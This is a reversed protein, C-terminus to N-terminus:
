RRGRGPKGRGAGGRGGSKGGSGKASGGKGGPQQKKASASSLGRLREKKAKQEADRVSPQRSSGARRGRVVGVFEEVLPDERAAVALPQEDEPRAVDVRLWALGVSTTPEGEILRCVVDKRAHLRALPGPLVAVAGAGSAVVELMMAAGGLEAPYDAPDLRLWAAAEAAPIPLTEDFYEADHDKPACVMVQEEYLEIVHLGPGKPSHGTPYRLLVLRARGAALESLPDAGEPLPRANLEQGQHTEEFRRLWKGPM